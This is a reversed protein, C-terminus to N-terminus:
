AHDVWIPFVPLFPQLDLARVVHLWSVLVFIFQELKLLVTFLVSLTSCHCCQSKYLLAKRYQM